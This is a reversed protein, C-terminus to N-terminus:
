HGFPQWVPLSKAKMMDVLEHTHKNGPFAVMGAVRGEEVLRKNQRRYLAEGNMGPPAGATLGVVMPVVKNAKAWEIAEACAGRSDATVLLTIPTKAHVKDLSGWIRDRDSYFASGHVLLNM